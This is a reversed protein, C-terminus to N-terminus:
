EPQDLPPSEALQDMLRGALRLVECETESLRALAGTLWADRQAMDQSLAASGAPTLSLVSERRDQESRSRVILGDAELEAYVRTLSQPQQHQAAAIRGPTAPGQRYLHGLVSIKNSSLADQPREQRLRWGLRLVGRRLQEAQTGYDM